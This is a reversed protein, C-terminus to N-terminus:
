AHDFYPALDRTASGPGCGLDLVAGFTGGTSAHIKLTEDILREPYGGRRRTYEEVQAATYTRFTTDSPQPADISRGYMRESGAGSQKRQWGLAHVTSSPLALSTCLGLWFGFALLVGM